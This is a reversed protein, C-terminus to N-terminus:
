RAAESANVAMTFFRKELASPAADAQVPVLGSRAVGLVGSMGILLILLLTSSSVYLIQKKM